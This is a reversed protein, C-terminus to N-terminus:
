HDILHRAAKLPDNLDALLDCVSSTGDNTSQPAVPALSLNSSAQLGIIFVCKGLMEFSMVIFGLIFSNTYVLQSLHKM